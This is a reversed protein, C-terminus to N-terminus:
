EREAIAAASENSECKPRALRHTSRNRIPPGGCISVNSGLGAAGTSIRPSSAGIAVFSGPAIDLDIGRLVRNAGFNKEVHALQVGASWSGQSRAIASRTAAFNAHNNM